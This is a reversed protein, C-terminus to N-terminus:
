GILWWLAVTNIAVHLTNDVITCLWGSLHLPTGPAFGGADAATRPYRYAEPALQNRAWIVTRAVRYRDLVAHTGVIAAWVVAARQASPAAVWVLPVFPLGYTVAHVGAVSLRRLKETAMWTTQLTYDGVVHAFVGLLVLLAGDM